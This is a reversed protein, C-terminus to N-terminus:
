RRRSLLGSLRKSLSRRPGKKGGNEPFKALFGDLDDDGDAMSKERAIKVTSGGLPNLSISSFFGTVRDAVDEVGQEDLFLGSVARVLKELMSQESGVDDGIGEFDEEEDDEEDEPMELDEPPLSALESLKTKGHHTKKFAKELRERLIDYLEPKEYVRKEWLSGPFKKLSKKLNLNFEMPLAGKALLNIIIPPVFSLKLDLLQVNTFRVKGNPLLAFSYAGEMEIRTYGKEESVLMGERIEEDIEMSKFAIACSLEESIDYGHAKIVADRNGIPLYFPLHLKLSTVRSFASNIQITDHSHLINRPFWHKMLDTEAFLSVIAVFLDAASECGPYPEIETSLKTMLFKSGDPKKFHVTTNDKKKQLSKTWGENSRIEHLLRKLASVDERHFDILDKHEHLADQAAKSSKALHHLDELAREAVFPQDMEMAKLFPDAIDGM